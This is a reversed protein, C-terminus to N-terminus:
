YYDVSFQDAYLLELSDTVKMDTWLLEKDEAAQSFVTTQLFLATVLFGRVIKKMRRM